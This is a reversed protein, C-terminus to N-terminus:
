RQEGNEGKEPEATRVATEVQAAKLISRVQLELLTRRRHDAETPDGPVYRVRVVRIPTIAM